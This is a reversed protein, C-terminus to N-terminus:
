ARGTTKATALPLWLTFTSGRGNESAVTIDGGLLRALQRAIALGVGAGETAGPNLRVFEEFIHERKDPPIGPGTDRVDVTLWEEGFARAARRTTACVLVQGGCPTYKVANSLLNGLIQRVRGGDTVVPSLTPLPALDLTLGAALAAARHSEVTEEVLQPVDTPARAIRLQGSEARAIELVDDILTVLSRVLRRIRQVSDRQPETLEGRLGAELLEAHGEIAGLPNKLDHSFGRTFIAKRAMVEEVERRRLEADNAFAALQRGLWGVALAAALAMAGLVVALWSERRMEVGVGSWRVTAAQTIAEDLRSVAVLANEYSRQATVPRQQAQGSLPRLRMVLDGAAAYWERQRVGLTDYRARVTPGLQAVLSALADYNRRQEERAADFRDLHAPNGTEGFDLLAAGQLALSLHLREVLARSPAVVDSLEHQMAQMRHLGTWPVAVLAVLSAVIFALALSPAWRSRAWRRASEGDGGARPWLLSAVVALGLISAIVALSLVIPIAYVGSLLMKMGVFVLVLSLGLKLYQFRGIVGALLFYLSRLGLIAFVNSTYVLFVDRTVSFIAPISDVAFVLDTTEILVLVVFLPTAVRRLAGRAGDVPLSVFLRQGHYTETVPIIRRLLRLVPNAGPDVAHSRQVAMRAGTVILFGGFVYIVWHFHELALAGAGIMVGRMVLAGLIGLVLVRHQYEPPVGFYSFLLVFVFINDVSLAKEILYGTLYELGAQTGMVHAIGAGFLLALAVWVASWV